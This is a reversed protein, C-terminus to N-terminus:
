AAHLTSPHLFKSSQQNYHWRDHQHDKQYSAKESTAGHGVHRKEPAAGGGAGGAIEDVLAGPLGDLGEGGEGDGGFLLGEGVLGLAEGVVFDVLGESEGEALCGEVGAGESAVGKGHLLLTVCSWARTLSSWALTSARVAATL